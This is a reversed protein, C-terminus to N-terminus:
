RCAIRQEDRDALSYDSMQCSVRCCKTLCGVTMLGCQHLTTVPGARLCRLRVTELETAAPSGVWSFGIVNLAGSMLEGLLGTSSITIFM